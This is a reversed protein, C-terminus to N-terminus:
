NAARLIKTLAEAPLEDKPRFADSNVYQLLSQRLQRAVPRNSLDTALDLSCVLLKGKGVRTEFVAGLKNNRHYDDIVQVIPRYGAPTDNLVFVRSSEMLEWWQWNSHADTPFDALAAHRPDCLVGMVGTQKPFYSYSWFVPLFQGAITSDSTVGRPWILM